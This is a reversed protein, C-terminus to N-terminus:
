GLLQRVKPGVQQDLKKVVEYIEPNWIEFWRVAGAFVATDGIKAEKAMEEPICIRGPKDLHVQVSQRSIERQMATKEEATLEQLNDIREMLDDVQKQTLIRLCPHNGHQSWLLIILESSGAPRWKSPVQVRRKDDVGHRYVSHYRRKEGGQGDESM